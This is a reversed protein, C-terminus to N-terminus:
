NFARASGALRREERKTHLEYKLSKRTPVRRRARPRVTEGEKRGEKGKREEGEFGVLVLLIRRRARGVRGAHMHAHTRTGPKPRDSDVAAAASEGRKRPWQSAPLLRREERREGREERGNQRAM